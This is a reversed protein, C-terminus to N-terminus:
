FIKEEMLRDIFKKSSEKFKMSFINELLEKIYESSNTSFYNFYRNLFKLQASRINSEKGVLILGKQIETELKLGYKELKERIIRVIGKITTRSVDLEICLDNLNLKEQFLTKFLIIEDKIETTSINKQFFDVANSLMILNGYFLEGKSKKEIEIFNNELLLQNIKEIDYRISRENIFVKEALYKYTSKGKNDLLIKLIELMRNTM